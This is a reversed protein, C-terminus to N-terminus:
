QCSMAVTLANFPTDNSEYFGISLLDGASVSLTHTTDTCSSKNGNTTVSCTLSTPAGNQYIVITSTDSGSSAFNNVGVALGSLTCAIPSPMAQNDFTTNTAIASGVFGIV